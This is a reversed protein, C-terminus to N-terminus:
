PAASACADRLRNLRRGIDSDGSAHMTTALAEAEALATAAATREGGALDVLGRSCLVRVLLPRDDAERLIAEGEGLRAAAETRRGQRALLAGLEGLVFGELRRNPAASLTERAQAFAAHAEDFDGHETLATGLSCLAYAEIRRNGMERACRLAVRFSELAEAVHGIGIQLEGINQLAVAESDRDGLERVIALARDFAARAREVEGIEGLVNGLNTLTIGEDRLSGLEHWVDLAAEYHAVAERTRGQEQYAIALNGCMRGELLRAGIDRAIALAAAYHVRSDEIRGAWLDVNGLRGLITAELKRDGLSRVRDLAREFEAKLGEEEGVRMLAEARCLFALERQVPTLDDLACVAAGLSMGLALPGQLALVEWAARYTAVATGGDGRTVARRCAAVMNDLELALVRRRQPGDSRHLAEIAEDSGLAAFCQGHREEGSREAAAGLGHLRERAYEHISVYMGFYLEDFDYRNNRNPEWARLLSKDVLSHVADIVSPAEPWASLDIVGEAQELTFGGEFLACQAFAAQESPSLLDWSWDIAARLTAQRAIPGRAGALLAFRDGLRVVIQAPTLVRIRAAALEIALPLGDLLAVIRAIPDRNDATLAFSSLQSRARAVFLEIAENDLALPELPFIEEGPLRLRERSTVIFTADPASEFWRGLTAPAHGLVQEFNDLVVLCRGRAAIANAIRQGPEATAVPVDLAVAVAGFLGELSRSESLDCFCVGGPWDGLWDRAYRRVFRTKGTGGGGLVTVLRTGGDLRLALAHLEKQRGVFSDREIPLNNRITRAPRWQEGDRVVRYASQTDGPPSFTSSGILGLEYLEVPAEIGRFRYHGLSEIRAGLAHTDGVAAAMPATLLNQGGRTISLLRALVNLPPGFYDGDRWQAEGCHLAIRVRIPAQEPWAEVYLAQQITAAAAIAQAPQPFAAHFGDGAAKFILGNHRAIAGRTITDHRALAARMADANREWLETSGEIDTLLFALNGDRMAFNAPEAPPMYVLHADALGM